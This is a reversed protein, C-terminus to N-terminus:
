EELTKLIEATEDPYMDNMKDFIEKYFTASTKLKISESKKKEIDIITCTKCM